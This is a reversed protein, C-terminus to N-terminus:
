KRKEPIGDFAEAIACTPCTLDAGCFGCSRVHCGHCVLWNGCRECFAEDNLLDVVDRWAQRQYEPIQEWAENIRAGTQFVFFARRALTEVRSNTAQTNM